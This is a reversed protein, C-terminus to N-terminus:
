NHHKSRHDGTGCLGSHQGLRDTGARRRGGGVGERYIRPFREPVHLRRPLWDLQSQRLDHRTGQELRPHAGRDPRHRQWLLRRGPGPDRWSRRHCLYAARGRVGPCRGRHPGVPGRRGRRREATTAPPAVIAEHSTNREQALGPETGLPSARVSTRRLAACLNVGTVWIVPVFHSSPSGSTWRSPPATSARASSTAASSPPSAAPLPEHHRALAQIAKYEAAQARTVRAMHVLWSRLTKQGDGQHGNKADFAALMPALAATLVADAQILERIYQALAEAPLQAADLDALYDASSRLKALAESGDAPVAVISM